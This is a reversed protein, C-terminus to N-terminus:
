LEFNDTSGPYDSLIKIGTYWPVPNDVISNTKIAVFRHFDTAIKFWRYYGSQKLRSDDTTIQCFRYSRPLPGESWDLDTYGPTHSKVSM